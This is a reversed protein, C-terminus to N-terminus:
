SSYRLYAETMVKQTEERLEEYTKGVPSIPDLYYIKVITPNIGEKFIRNLLNAGQKFLHELNIGKQKVFTSTNQKGPKRWKEAGIFVVPFIDLGLDCAIRFAGNKFQLMPKQTRNREGEPFVMLITEGESTLFEKSVDVAKVRDEIRDKERAIPVGVANFFWHFMRWSWLNAGIMIRWNKFLGIFAAIFYDASGKHNFVAIGKKSKRFVKVNGKQKVFLSVAFMAFLGLISTITCGWKPDKFKSTLYILLAGIPAIISIIPFFLILSIFTFFLRVEWGRSKGSIAMMFSGIFSLIILFVYVGYAILSNEISNQPEILFAVLRFFLWCIFAPVLYGLFALRAKNKFLIM